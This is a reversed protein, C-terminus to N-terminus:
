ACIEPLVTFPPEGDTQVPSFSPIRRLQRQREDVVRSEEEEFLRIPPLGSFRSLFVGLGCDNADQFM